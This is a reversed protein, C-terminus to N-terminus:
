IRIAQIELDKENKAFLKIDDMYMLQNFKKQSKTFKHNWTSKILIHSLPMMTILFLLPSLADKQFISRLIKVDALTKGRNIFEMKWNKMVEM